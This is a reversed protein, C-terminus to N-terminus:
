HAEGTKRTFAAPILLIGAGAKAYDRYLHAFRLDYCISMGAVTGHTETLVARTGPTVVESECYRGNAGLDIDFMHIKDYRARVAGDAGVHFSRNFLRGGESVAVSGILIEVGRDRAFGAFAALAPHASEAFAAPALAGDVVDLGACYEPLAILTAGRDAAEEMADLAHAIDAEVDPTASMQVCAATFVTM